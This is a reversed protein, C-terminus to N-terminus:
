QALEQLAQDVSLTSSAATGSSSASTGAPSTSSATDSATTLITMMPKKATLAATTPATSEPTTSAIEYDIQALQIQMDVAQAEARLTEPNIVSLQIPDVSSQGPFKGVIILIFFVTLAVGIGTQFVAVLTRRVNWRLGREHPLQALIARKSRERSAPDSEINKFRQLTELLNM